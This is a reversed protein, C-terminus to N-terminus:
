TPTQTETERTITLTPAPWEDVRDLIRALESRLNIRSRISKPAASASWGITNRTPPQNARGTNPMKVQEVDETEGLYAFPGCRITFTPLM